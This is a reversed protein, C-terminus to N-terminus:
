STTSYPRRMKLAPELNRSIRKIADLVAIAATSPPRNSSMSIWTTQSVDPQRIRLARLSGSMLEDNYVQLPSITGLDSSLIAQKTLASSGAELAIKLEFRRSAALGVLLETLSNPRKPLALPVQAVERLTIESSGAAPHDRRLILHMPQRQLIDSRSVRGRGYRNYIGIEIQGSGLWEEVQGSYGELARLRIGPHNARLEAVLAGFISYSGAPVIGITVEGRLQEDSRRVVDVFESADAVLGRARLLAREGFETLEVGRGTRHFLREGVARELASVQRSLASQAIGTTRAARAYSGHAAVEVFAKLHRLEM